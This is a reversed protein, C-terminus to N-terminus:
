LHQDLRSTSRPSGWDWEDRLHSQLVALTVLLREAPWLGVQERVVNKEARGM